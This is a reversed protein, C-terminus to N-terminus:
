FRKSHICKHIEQEREYPLFYAASSIWENGEKFSLFCSITQFCGAVYKFRAVLSSELIRATVFANKTSFPSSINGSIYSNDGMLILTHYRICSDSSSCLYQIMSVISSRISRLHQMRGCPFAIYRNGLM